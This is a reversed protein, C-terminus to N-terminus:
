VGPRRSEDLTSRPKWGLAIALEVLRQRGHSDRSGRSADGTLSRTSCSCRSKSWMAARAPRSTSPAAGVREAGRYLRKGSGSLRRFLRQDSLDPRHRAQGAAGSSGTIDRGKM